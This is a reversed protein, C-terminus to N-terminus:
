CTTPDPVDLGQPLRTLTNAVGEEESFDEPPPADEPVTGLPQPKAPCSPCPGGLAPIVGLLLWSKELKSRRIGRQLLHFISSKMM